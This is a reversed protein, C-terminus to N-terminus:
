FSDLKFSVEGFPTSFGIEKGIKFGLGAVKAEVGDRGVSVSTDIVGINSKVGMVETEVGAKIKTAFGDSDAKAEVKFEM